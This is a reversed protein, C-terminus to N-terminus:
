ADKKTDTSPPVKLTGCARDMLQTYHGFNHTNKSHHIAHYQPGLLLVCPSYDKSHIYATWIGTAFLLAKHVSAHMPVFFPLIVYPLAQAIGDLPHFGFGAFPTLSTVFSHHFAHFRRLRPYIHMCRHAWYVGMEILVIFVVTHVLILFFSANTYLKTWPSILDFATPLLAYVPMAIVSAAIHKKVDNSTTPFCYMFASSALAYTLVCGVLNEVYM